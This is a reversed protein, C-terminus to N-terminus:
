FDCLDSFEKKWFMACQKPGFVKSNALKSLTYYVCKRFSNYKSQLYRKGMNIIDTKESKGDRFYFIM